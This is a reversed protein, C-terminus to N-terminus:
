PVVVVLGEGALRTVLALVDREIEGEGADFLDALDRCLADLRVPAALRRWIESGVQGLGYATGRAVSVLVTEGDIETAIQATSRVVTASLTIPLAEM